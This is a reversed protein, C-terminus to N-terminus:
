VKQFGIGVASCASMKEHAQGWSIAVGDFQITCKKVKYAMRCNTMAEAASALSPARKKFQLSPIVNQLDRLSNPWGCGLVGTCKSLAIATPMAFLVTLLHCKCDISILYKQTQSLIAWSAYSMLYWGPCSFRASWWLLCWM